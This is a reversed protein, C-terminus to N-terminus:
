AVAAASAAGLLAHVQVSSDNTFSNIDSVELVLHRGRARAALTVPSGDPTHRLANEILNDLMLAIDQRM